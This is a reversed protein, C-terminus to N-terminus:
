LFYAVISPLNWVKDLKDKEKKTKEHKSKEAALQEKAQLAEAAQTKCNKCPEIKGTGGAAKGLM